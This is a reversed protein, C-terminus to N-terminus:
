MSKYVLHVYTDATTKIQSYGLLESVVKISEDENLM